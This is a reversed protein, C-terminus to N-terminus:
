LRLSLVFLSLGFPMATVIVAGVSLPSPFAIMELLVAGSVVLTWFGFAPVSVRPVTVLYVVVAITCAAIIVRFILPFAPYVSALVLIPYGFFSLLFLVSLESASSLNTQSPGTSERPDREAGIWDVGDPNANATNPDSWSVSGGDTDTESRERSETRARNPDNGTRTTNRVRDTGRRTRRSRERGRNSRAAGPDDAQRRQYGPDGSDDPTDTPDDTDQTPDYRDTVSVYAEHGLRDYREREDADTLVDGAEIVAKVAESAREDDSVDPHTEKLRDRYATEIEEYTASPSVGLVDYFTRAM